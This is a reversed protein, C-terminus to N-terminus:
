ALKYGKRTGQGAVKVDVQIAVGDTVLAKCLHTTKPSSMGIASAIDSTTMPESTLMKEIQELLPKQEARKAERKEADKHARADLKDIMGQAYDIVDETIKGAIVAEAFTRQTMKTEM